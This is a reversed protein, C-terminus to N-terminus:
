EIIAGEPCETWPAWCYYYRDIYGTISDKPCFVKIRDKTGLSM